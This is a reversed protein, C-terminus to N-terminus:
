VSVAPDATSRSGKAPPVLPLEITFRTGGKRRNSAHISGGHAEVLHRSITLGLGSGGTARTRSRDVRHFREFIRDLEEEPVGPGADDVTIMIWNDAPTPSSSSGATLSEVGVTITGGEGTHVIANELLNRLVQMIRQSDVVMDPLPEKPREVAIRIGSSGAASGMSLTAKELLDVPNVVRYVMALAGADAIALEQLDDVLRHLLVADDKITEIAIDPSVLGDEVAELYGRINSLPTRLEHAIDAVFNRRFAEARGLDQAMGNLANALVTFEGKAPMEIGGSFDGTGIRHTEAVLVRIPATLRRALLATLILAAFCALLSGWLLFVGISRALEQKYATAVTSEPGVYLTGLHINGQYSVLTRSPWEPEFTTGVLGHRSDVIVEDNVDTLVIRRGSLVGMEAISSQVDDWSQGRAHYGLLWHEMRTIYLQDTLEDYVEIEQEAGQMVYLSVTGLALVIVVAFGAFLRLQFGGIGTTM